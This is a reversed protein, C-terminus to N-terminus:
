ARGQSKAALYFIVGKLPQNGTKIGTQVAAKNADAYAKLATDIHADKFYPGLAAYDLNDRSVDRWAVTQKLSSVGGKDGRNRSLDALSASAHEEAQAREEALRNEEARAAEEREERERDIREQEARAEAERKAAEERAVKAAAEAAAKSEANRKRAAEAALRESEERAKRAEDEAKKRAAEEEARRKREAEEREKRAKEEIERLRKAEAERARKEEEAKKVKFATQADNIKKGAEALPDLIRTKFFQQVASARDDYPAKAAVRDAESAKWRARNKVMFETAQSDAEDTTITYFDPAKALLAEVRQLAEMNGAELAAVIEEVSPLRGELDNHGIGPTADASTNDIM